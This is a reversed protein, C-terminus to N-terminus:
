KDKNMAKKRRNELFMGLALLSIGGLIFFLAKDMLNWGWRCYNVTLYIILFWNTLGIIGNNEFTSSM